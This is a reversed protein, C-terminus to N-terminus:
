EAGEGGLLGPDDWVNGVAEMYQAKKGSLTYIDDPGHKKRWRGDYFAFHCLFENYYVEAIDGKNCSYGINRTSRCIDGEFIRKGNKDCLGTSQGVTAPDVLLHGGRGGLIYHKDNLEDHFYSGIVWKEGHLRGGDLRKGRFLIERNM